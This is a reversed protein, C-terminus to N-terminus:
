DPKGLYRQVLTVCLWVPKQGLEESKKLNIIIEIGQKTLLAALTFATDLYIDFIDAM